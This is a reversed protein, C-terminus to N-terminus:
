AFLEKLSHLFAFRRFRVLGNQAAHFQFLHAHGAFLKYYIAKARRIRVAGTVIIIKSVEPFHQAVLEMSRWANEVTTRAQNEVLIPIPSDSFYPLEMEAETITLANTRGGTIVIGAVPQERLLAHATQIRHLFAPHIAGCRLPKEGHVILVAAM